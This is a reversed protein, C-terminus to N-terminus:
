SPCAEFEESECDCEEEDVFHFEGSDDLRYLACPLYPEEPRVSIEMGVQVPSPVALTKGDQPGGIFRFHLRM